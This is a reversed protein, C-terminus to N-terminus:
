LSFKALIGKVIKESRPLLFGAVPGVLGACILTGIGFVGGLLFGAAVFSVDVLVRVLSFKAHSKDSIVLAVLDNPGTGADSKIVITMGFALIVCGAALVPIKVFLSGGGSFLSGLIGTFFDIIPGGCIMCLITGIKIYSKDAIVLVLIILFCISIHTYGHTLAQFGKVRGLTRFIGQVLVNFPDAGLDALLFLTVGLHAITLGALLILVRILTEKGSRKEM